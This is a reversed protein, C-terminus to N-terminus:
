CWGTQSWRTKTIKPMLKWSKLGSQKALSWQNPNLVRFACITWVTFWIQNKFHHICLLLIRKLIHDINNILDRSLITYVDSYFGRKINYEFLQNISEFVYLIRLWTEKYSIDAIDLFHAPIYRSTPVTCLYQVFHDFINELFIWMLLAAVYWLTYRRFM